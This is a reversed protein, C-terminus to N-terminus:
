PLGKLSPFFGALSIVKALKENLPSTKIVKLKKWLYLLRLIDMNMLNEHQGFPHPIREKLDQEQLVQNMKQIAKLFVIGVYSSCMVPTNKSPYDVQALHQSFITKHGMMLMKLHQKTGALSLRSHEEIALRQFESFFVDVIKQKQEEALSSPILPRVDLSLSYSFPLSLPNKIPTVAHNKTIRNVHSLHLGKGEPNVFIGIHCIRGMFLQKMADICDFDNGNLVQFSYRDGLFIMGSSRSELCLRKLEDLFPHSIFTDLEDLKSMLPNIGHIKNKNLKQLFGRVTDIGILINVDTISLKEKEHFPAIVDINKIQTLKQLKSKFHPFFEPDCLLFLDKLIKHQRKVQPDKKFDISFDFKNLCNKNIDAQSFVAELTIKEAESIEQHETSLITLAKIYEIGENSLAYRNFLPCLRCFKFVVTMQIKFAVERITELYSEPRIIQKPSLYSLAISSINEFLKVHPKKSFFDLELTTSLRYGSIKNFFCM